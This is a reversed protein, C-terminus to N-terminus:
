FRGKKAKTGLAPKSAAIEPATARLEITSQLETKASQVTIAAAFNM